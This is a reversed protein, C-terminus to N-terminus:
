SCVGSADAEWSRLAKWRHIGDAQSRAPASLRVKPGGSTGQNLRRPGADSMPECADSGALDPRRGTIRRLSRAAHRGDVEAITHIESCSRRHGSRSRTIGPDSSGPATLSCRGSSRHGGFCSLEPTVRCRETVKDRGRLRGNVGGDSKDGVWASDFVRQRESTGTETLFSKPSRRNLPLGTSM